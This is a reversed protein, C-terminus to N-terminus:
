CCRDVEAHARDWRRHSVCSLRRGLKGTNTPKTNHHERDDRNSTESSQQHTWQRGLGVTIGDGERTLTLDAILHALDTLVAIPRRDADGPDVEALEGRIAQRLVEAAGAAAVEPEARTLGAANGLAGTPVIPPIRLVFVFPEGPLQEAGGRSLRLGMCLLLHGSLGPEASDALRASCHKISGAIELLHHLAVGATKANMEAVVVGVDKGVFAAVAVGDVIGEPAAPRHGKHIVAVCAHEAKGIVLQHGRLVVAVRM